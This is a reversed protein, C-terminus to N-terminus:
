RPKNNKHPRGPTRCLWGSGYGDGDSRRGWGRLYLRRSRQRLHHLDVHEGPGGGAYKVEVVLPEQAIWRHDPVGGVAPDMHNSRLCSAVRAAGLLNDHVPGRVYHKHQFLYRFYRRPRGSMRRLRYYRRRGVAIRRKEDIVLPDLPELGLTESPTPPVEPRPPRPKDRSRARSSPTAQPHRMWAGTACACGDCPSSTAILPRQRRACSSACSVRFAEFNESARLSKRAQACSAQGSRM